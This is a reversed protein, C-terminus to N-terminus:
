QVKSIIQVNIDGKIIVEFGLEMANKMLDKFAKCEKELMKIREDESKYSVNNIEKLRLSKRNHHEIKANYLLSILPLAEAPEFQGNILNFDQNEKLIIAKM